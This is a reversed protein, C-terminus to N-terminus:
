NKRKKPTHKKHYLKLCLCFWPSTLSLFPSPLPIQIAPYVPLIFNFNAWFYNMIVLLLQGTIRSPQQQQYKDNYTLSSLVPPSLLNNIKNITITKMIVVIIVWLPFVKWNSQFGMQVGSSSIFELNRPFVARTYPGCGLCTILQKKCGGCTPNKGLKTSSRRLFCAMRISNNCGM